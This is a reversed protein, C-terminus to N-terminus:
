QVKDQAATIINRMPCEKQKAPATVRSGPGFFTELQDKNYRSNKIPEQIRGSTKRNNLAVQVGVRTPTASIKNSNRATSKMGHVERGGKQGGKEERKRENDSAMTINDDGNALSHLRSLRKGGKPSNIGM